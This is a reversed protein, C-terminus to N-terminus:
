SLAPLNMKLKSNPLDGARRCEPWGCDVRRYWTGAIDAFARCAARRAWEHMQAFIPYQRPILGIVERASLNRDHRSRM